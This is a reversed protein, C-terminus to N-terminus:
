RKMVSEDFNMLTGIVAGVAALQNADLNNPASVEGVALYKKSRNPDERFYELQTRFLEVIIALEDNTPQRSTLTRFGDRLISQVDDGHKELLRM